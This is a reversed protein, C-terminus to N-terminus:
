DRRTDLIIADAYEGNKRISRAQVFYIITKLLYSSGFLLAVIGIFILFGMSMQRRKAFNEGVVIGWIVM